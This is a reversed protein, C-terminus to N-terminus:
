MLRLAAAAKAAAHSKGASVSAVVFILSWILLQVTPGGSQSPGRPGSGCTLQSYQSLRIDATGCLELRGADSTSWSYVCVDRWMDIFCVM